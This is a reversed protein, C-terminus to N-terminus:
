PGAARQLRVVSTTEGPLLPAPAGTRWAEHQDAYNPSLYHGSQGGPTQLLGREERGPAVVLRASAGFRPHSVRVADPHGGQPHSPLNLRASGWPTNRSFPHAFDSMNVQGWPMDLGGGDAEQQVLEAVVSRFAADYMADFSAHRDPLCEISEQQLLRRLPESDVRFRREAVVPAVVQLVEDALRRDVLMLIRFGTQQEGATGDWSAVYARARRVSEDPDDDPLIRLLREQLPRLHPMATDLQMAHLDRETFIGDRDLMAGIRVARTPTAWDRGLRGAMDASAMRSNASFLVGSDPDEVRPRMSDDLWGDWDAGEFWAAPLAGDHGIRNPLRGTITWGIGGDRDAVMANQPPGGWGSLVDLADGTTRTRAVDLIGMDLGGPEAVSWKRAYPANMREGSWIAGWRTSRIEMEQPEDRAVEITETDWVFSEYLPAGDESTGIRYRAPDTPHEEIRVLDQTDVNANTFGWAVYGNTGIAVGPLGPLSLGFVWWGEADSGDHVPWAAKSGAPATLGIRYWTNPATIGLHPDSALMAGGHETRDGSIVWANSGLTVSPLHKSNWGIDDDGGDVCSPLAPLTVPEEDMMPQDDPHVAPILFDMMEQSSHRLVDSRNMEMRTSSGCLTDGLALMVLLCDVPAWPQPTSGLLLYEPPPGGLHALGANVGESYTQLHRRHSTPLADFAREAVRRLQFVRQSRDMSVMPPGLLAAMEGAAYCRMLDMQFFRHQGHMFGQGQYLGDLTEAAVWPVGAADLTIVIEDEVLGTVAHTRDGAPPLSDQPTQGLTALVVLLTFDIM